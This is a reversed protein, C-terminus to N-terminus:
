HGTRGLKGFGRSRDSDKYKMVICDVVEGFQEFYAKLTEDTTAYNLGGIFIKRVVEGKPGSPGSPGGAGREEKPMARKLDIKTDDLTHPAAEFCAEAEDVTSYTIFGFGSSFFIM